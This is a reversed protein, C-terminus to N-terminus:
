GRRVGRFKTLRTGFENCRLTYAYVPRSGITCKSNWWILDRLIGVCLGVSCPERDFAICALRRWWFIVVCRSRGVGALDVEGAHEVHKKTLNGIDSASRQSTLLAPEAFGNQIRWLLIPLGIQQSCAYRSCPPKSAVTSLEETINYVSQMVQSTFLTRPWSLRIFRGHTKYSKSGSWM